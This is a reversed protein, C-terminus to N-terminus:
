KTKQWILLSGDAFTGILSVSSEEGQISFVIEKTTGTQRNVVHASVEGRPQFSKITSVVLDLVRHGESKDNPTFAIGLETRSTQGEVVVEEGSDTAFNVDIDDANAVGSCIISFIALFKLFKKM